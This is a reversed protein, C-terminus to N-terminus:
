LLVGEQVFIITNPEPSVGALPFVSYTPLQPIDAKFIPVEAVTTDKLLLQRAANYASNVERQPAGGRVLQLRRQNLDQLSRCGSFM